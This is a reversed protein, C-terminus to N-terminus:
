PGSPTARQSVSSYLIFYQDRCASVHSFVFATVNFRLHFESSGATYGRGSPPSPTPVNWLRLCAARDGPAQHADM